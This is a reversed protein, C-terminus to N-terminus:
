SFTQPFGVCMSLPVVESGYRLCFHRQLVWSDAVDERNFQERAVTSLARTQEASARMKARRGQGTREAIKLSGKTVASTDALVGLDMGLLRIVARMHSLYQGLSAGSRFFFVFTELVGTSPPWPKSDCIRAAQGWLRVASAYQEASKRWQGLERWLVEEACLIAVMASKEKPLTDLWQARALPLAPPDSGMVKSWHQEMSNEQMSALMQLANALQGPAIDGVEKATRLTEMCTQFDEAKAIMPGSTKFSSPMTRRAKAQSESAQMSCSDSAIRKELAAFTVSRSLLHEVFPLPLDALPLWITRAEIATLETFDAVCTAGAAILSNCVSDANIQQLGQGQDWSSISRQIWNLFTGRTETSSEAVSEVPTTNESLVPTDQGANLWDQRSSNLFQQFAM